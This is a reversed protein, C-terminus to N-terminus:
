CDFSMQVPPSEKDQKRQNGVSQVSANRTREAYGTLEALFHVREAVETGEANRRRQKCPRQRQVRVADGANRHRDEEGDAAHPAERAKIHVHMNHM